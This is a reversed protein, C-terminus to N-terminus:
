FFDTKLYLCNRIRKTKTGLDGFSKITDVEAVIKIKKGLGEDRMWKEINERSYSKM